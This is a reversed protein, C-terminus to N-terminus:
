ALRSKVAPWSGVSVFLSALADFSAAEAFVKSVIASSSSSFFRRSAFASRVVELTSHSKLKARGSRPTRGIASM